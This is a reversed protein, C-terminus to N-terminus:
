RALLDRAATALAAMRLEAPYVQAQSMTIGVLYVGTGLRYCYIAGQEVDLVLRHIRGGLAHRAARNFRVALADLGQGFREYFARRASVTINTFFTRLSEHELCDVMLETTGASYVAVLHLGAPDLADVCLDDLLRARDTPEAQRTVAGAASGPGETSPELPATEFGGPNQSGLSILRRLRTSLHSVSEDVRHVVADPVPEANHPSVADLVVGVVHQGPVVRAAVAAGNETQLAIRILGGSQVERLMGDTQELEFGLVRGFRQLDERRTGGPLADPEPAPEALRDLSLDFQGGAYHAVYGLAAADHLADRCLDRVLDFEAGVHPALIEHYVTGEPTRSTSM